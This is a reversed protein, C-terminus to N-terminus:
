RHQPLPAHMEDVFELIEPRWVAASLEGARVWRGVGWLDQPWIGRRRRVVVLTELNAHGLLVM